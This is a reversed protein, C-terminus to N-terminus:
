GRFRVRVRVRVRVRARVRVGSWASAASVATASLKPTRAREACSPGAHAPPAPPPAVDARSSARACLNSVSARAATLKLTLGLGM